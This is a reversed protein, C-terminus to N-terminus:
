REKAIQFPFRPLEDLRSEDQTALGWTVSKFCDVHWVRFSPSLRYINPFSAILVTGKLPSAM